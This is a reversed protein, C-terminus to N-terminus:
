RIVAITAGTEISQGEKVKLDEVTGEVHALISNEMKMAELIVIAEGSKVKQGETVLVKVITGQMPAVLTDSGGGVGAGVRSPPKPKRQQVLTELRERATVSFRQGDVEVDFVREVTEPDGPKPASVPAEALV